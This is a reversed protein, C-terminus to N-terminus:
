KVAQVIINIKQNLLNTDLNRLKIFDQNRVSTRQSVYKPYGESPDKSEFYTYILSGEREVIIHAEHINMTNQRKYVYSPMDLFDSLNKNYEYVKEWSECGGNIICAEIEKIQNNSSIDLTLTFQETSNYYTNISSSQPMNTDSENSEDQNNQSDDSGGSSVDEVTAEVSDSIYNKKVIILDRKLDKVLQIKKEVVTKDGDFSTLLEKEFKAQVIPLAKEIKAIFWIRESQPKKEIIRELISEYQGADVISSTAFVVFVFALIVLLKKM